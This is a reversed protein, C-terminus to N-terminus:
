SVGILIYVGLCRNNLEDIIFADPSVVLVSLDSDDDLLVLRETILHHHEIDEDCINVVQCALIYVRGQTERQTGRDLNRNLELILMSVGKSLIYFADRDTNLKRM